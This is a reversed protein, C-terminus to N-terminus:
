IQFPLVAHGLVYNEEEAIAHWYGSQGRGSNKHSLLFIICSAFFFHQWKFLKRKDTQRFYTSGSYYNNNNPTLDYGQKIIKSLPILCKSTSSNKTQFFWKTGVYIVNKKANLRIIEEPIFSIVPSFTYSKLTLCKIVIFQCIQFTHMINKNGFYIYVNRKLKQNESM